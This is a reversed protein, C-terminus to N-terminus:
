TAMSPLAWARSLLELRARGEDETAEILSRTRDGLVQKTDTSAGDIWPKLMGANELLWPLGEGAMMSLVLHRAFEDSKAAFDGDKLLKEGGTNLLDHLKPVASIGIIQDRLNRFLTRRSSASLLEAAQFWAVAYPRAENAILDSMLKELADFLPAGLAPSRGAVEQFSAAINLPQASGRIAQEWRASEVAKLLDVLEKRAQQRTKAMVGDSVVLRSIVQIVSDSLGVGRLVEWFGEYISLRDIFKGKTEPAMTVTFKELDELISEVPLSGLSKDEVRRNVIPAILAAIASDHAVQNILLRFSAKPGWQVVLRDVRSPLEAFRGVFSSWAVGNPPAIPQDFILMLVIALEAGDELDSAACENLITQLRGNKANQLLAARAAEVDVQLNGLIYAAVPVIPGDGPQQALATSAAKVLDDWGKTSGRDLVIEAKTRLFESRNPDGLLDALEASLLQQTAVTRLPAAAIGPEDVLRAALELFAKADGRIMVGQLKIDAALARACVRGILGTALDLREPRNYLDPPWASMRGEVSRLFGALDAAPCHDMLTGAVSISQLGMDTHLDSRSYFARLRRWAFEAWDSEPLGAAAFAIIAKATINITMYQGDDLLRQIAKDFGPFAMQTKITADDGAEIARRLPQDLMVQIAEAPTTGYHLAAISLQWNPDKDSIDVSPSNLAAVLNGEIVDRFVAFYSISVFPIDGDRWTLWLSAIAGVTKNIDRPTVESRSQVRNRYFRATEFIWDHPVSEGFAFKMQRALYNNWNNLVPPSVHFVADFTKDMFSRAFEDEANPDAGSARAIASEDIPLLVTPLESNTLKEDPPIAGLFFSRITTWM